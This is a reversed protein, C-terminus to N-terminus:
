EPAEPVLLVLCQSRLLYTFPPKNSVAKKQIIIESNHAHCNRPTEAHMLLCMVDWYLHLLTDHKAHAYRLLISQQYKM